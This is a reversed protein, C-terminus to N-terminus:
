SFWLHSLLDVCHAAYDACSHQTLCLVVVACEMYNQTTKLISSDSDWAVSIM